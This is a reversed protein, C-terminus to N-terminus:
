SGDNEGKGMMAKLHKLILEMQFLIIALGSFAVPVYLWFKSLWPLSTYVSNEGVRVAYSWGVWMMMGGFALVVLDGFLDLLQVARVPLYRDLATMRIHAQRRIALAASILAMYIMCTLVIEESWAPDPIFSIYRGLVAFSTIGIDAILLIKCVFMVAQYFWDFFRKAM